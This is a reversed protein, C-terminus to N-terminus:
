SIYIKELCFSEKMVPLRVLNKLREEYVFRGKDKVPLKTDVSQNLKEEMRFLIQEQKKQRVSRDSILHM